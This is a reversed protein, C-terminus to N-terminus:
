EIESYKSLSSSYFKGSSLSANSQISKANKPTKDHYSQTGTKWVKGENQDKNNAQPCAFTLNPSISTICKHGKIVNNQM